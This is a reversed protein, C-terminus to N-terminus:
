CHLFARLYATAVNSAGSDGSNGHDTADTTMPMGGDAM